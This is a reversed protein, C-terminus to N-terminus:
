YILNLIEQYINESATKKNPPLIVEEIFTKRIDRLPDDEGLVVKDIFNYVDNVSRSIYLASIARVGHENWGKMVGDNSIMFLEPKGTCLYETIFSQSDNICADSTLFLDIYDVEELQGNALNRWTNYYDDTRKKGWEPYHYLKQKIMIHPKFAVQIKDRYKSAIDLMIQNYNLFNSTKLGERMLHHPAWIIRKFSRDKIKWRDEPLYAEDMLMDFGPYGTVVVNIGANDAYQVALKKHLTTEYFSKWVVNHFFQNFRLEYDNTAMFAYPVYCTISDLYNTIFYENRTLRYPLTFFIIDPNIETKVDIWKSAEKNYSRIPEYGKEKFLKFAEDMLENMIKEGYRVDPCILVLPDFRKDTLMKRYVYDLKWVAGHIVFFVVKIKEKGKIRKLAKLQKQQVSKIRHSSRYSILRKKIFDPLLINLVRKFFHIM